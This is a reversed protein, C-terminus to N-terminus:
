NEWLGSDERRKETHPGDSLIADCSGPKEGALPHGGKCARVNLKAGMTYFKRTKAAKEGMEAVFFNRMRRFVLILHARKLILNPRACVLALLEDPLDNKLARGCKQTAPIQATGKCAISPEIM